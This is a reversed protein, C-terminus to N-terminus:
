RSTRAAFAPQNLETALSAWSPRVGTDNFFAGSIATFNALSAPLPDSGQHFVINTAEITGNEPTLAIAPNIAVFPDDSGGGPLVFSGVADLFPDIGAAPWVIGGVYATTIPLTKVDFRTVIGFNNNGGKLAWFLDAYSNASVEVVSSNALVVEYRVVADASWGVRNGFYNIGGGLLLGGVGVQGYRGGPVALGYSSLWSYVQDWIQGPGIQAISNNEALNRTDLNTMGIMVGGDTSAAGPVPMHGGSRVSFQSKTKRIVSLAGGVDAASRPTFVCSPSLLCTESWLGLNLRKTLQLGSTASM